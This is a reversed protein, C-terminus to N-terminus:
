KKSRKGAKNKRSRAIVGFAVVGVVMFVILGTILYDERSINLNQFFSGTDPVPVKGYWSVSYVYVNGIQRNDKTWFSVKVKYEGWPLGDFPIDIGGEETYGGLITNILEGNPGYVYVTGTERDAEVTRVVNGDEDYIEGKIKSVVDVETEIEVEATGDDKVVITIYKVDLVNGEGDKTIVEATYVGAPLGPVSITEIEGPNPIFIPGYVLTGGDDYVNIEAEKTEAKPIEPDAKGTGTDPDVEITGGDVEKSGEKEYKVELIKEVPVSEHGLGTATFTFNGYGGYSDLNLDFHQSGPNWDADIHWLETPGYIVNGNDDKNVLTVKIDTIGSFLVDFNYAPDTVEPGLPSSIQIDSEAPIVRLQVVDTVNDTTTALAPDPTLAATATLAAVLGLGAFGLIKKHTKNM